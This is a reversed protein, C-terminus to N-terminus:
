TSVRAASKLWGASTGLANVNMSAPVSLASVPQTQVVFAGTVIPVVAIKNVCNEPAPEYEAPVPSVKVPVVNLILLVVTVVPLKPLELLM